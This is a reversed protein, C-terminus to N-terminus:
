AISELSEAVTEVTASTPLVVDKDLRARDRLGAFDDPANYFVIPTDALFRHAVDFYDYIARGKQWSEVDLAVIKAGKKALSDLFQSTGDCRVADHDKKQILRVLEDARTRTEDVVLINM